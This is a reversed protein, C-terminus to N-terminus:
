QNEGYLHCAVWHKPKAEQFEPIKQSCIPLAKPCRKCFVCGKREEFPSPIEGEIFVHKKKKEEGLETMSSLLVETYPHLPDEYLSDSSALEVLRGLYMVAVRDSIYKVLSLDHSIFLYTLNMRKQLSKLLNVVQAQVSVDLASIPEDLVLFKPEVALARALGIRQRQGGSFEHPFRYRDDPNLNVLELLEIIRETRKGGKSLHHIDLAEGIIQEVNIRPNLSSYPDQLLMQMNRRMKKMKQHSLSYIDTENYLVQGASPEILRLLTKGLTSKGCGSEGVLGVMEGHFIDLDFFDVAKLIKDKVRFHKKLGKISVIVDKQM